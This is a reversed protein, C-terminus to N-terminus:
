LFNIVQLYKVINSNMIIIYYSINLQFQTAVWHCYYLVCICVFLVTFSV